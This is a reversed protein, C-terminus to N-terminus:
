RPRVKESKFYHDCDSEYRSVKSNFQGLNSSFSQPAWNEAAAYSDVALLLALPTPKGETHELTVEREARTGMLIWCEKAATTLAM